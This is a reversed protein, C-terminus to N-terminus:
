KRGVASPAGWSGGGARAMSRDWAPGAAAAHSVAIGASALVAIDDWRKRMARRRRSLSRRGRVPARQPCSGSAKPLEIGVPVMHRSAGAGPGKRPAPVQELASKLAALRKDVLSGEDPRM